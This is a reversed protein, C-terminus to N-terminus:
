DDEEMNDKASKGEGRMAGRTLKSVYDRWARIGRQGEVNRRNMRM